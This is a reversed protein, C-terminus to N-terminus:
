QLWHRGHKEYFERYYNIIARVTPISEENLLRLANSRDTAGLNYLYSRVVFNTERLNKAIKTRYRGINYHNGIYIADSLEILAHHAADMSKISPVDALIALPKYYFSAIQDAHTRLRTAKQLFVKHAEDQLEKTDSGSVDAYYSLANAIEGVIKRYDRYPEMFKVIIYGLGAVIATLLINMM